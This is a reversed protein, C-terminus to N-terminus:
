WPPVVEVRGGTDLAVVDPVFLAEEPDRKRFDLLDPEALAAWVLAASRADPARIERREVEFRRLNGEISDIRAMALELRSALVTPRLGRDSSLAISQLDLRLRPKGDGPTHVSIEMASAPHDLVPAGARIRDHIERAIEMGQGLIRDLSLRQHNTLQSEVLGPLAYRPPAGPAPIRIEFNMAGPGPSTVPLLKALLRDLDALFARRDFVRTERSLAPRMIRPAPM